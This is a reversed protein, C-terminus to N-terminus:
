VNLILHLNLISKDFKGKKMRDEFAKTAQSKNQVFHNLKCALAGTLNYFIIPNESLLETRPM